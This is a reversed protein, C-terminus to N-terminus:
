RQLTSLYFAEARIREPCKPDNAPHQDPRKRAKCNCCVAKKAKNPCEKFAHDSMGCHGCMVPRNCGQARHGYGQCKYCRNVDIFEKVKHSSMNLYVRGQILLAKTIGECAEIVVHSAGKGKPGLRFRVQATDLEAKSFGVDDLNRRLLDERLDVDQLDTPVDYIMLKPRNAKPDEVKFGAERLAASSKLKQLDGSSPSEVVFGPTRTPRVSKVRGKNGLEAAITKLVSGKKEVPKWDETSTQQIPRILVAPGRAAVDAFTKVTGSEKSGPKTNNTSGSSKGSQNISLVLKDILKDKELLTAEECKVRVILSHIIAEYESMKSALYRAATKNIKNTDSHIFADV